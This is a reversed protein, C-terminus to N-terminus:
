HHGAWRLQRSRTALNVRDSVLEAHLRPTDRQPQVLRRPKLDLVCPAGLAYGEYDRLTAGAYFRLGPAGAVLPNAAFRPDAAADEVVLPEPQRITHNCFAWARPTEPPLPLGHRAKFWQRHRTLLTLLAIPTDFPRAALAADADLAEHAPTDALQSRAM